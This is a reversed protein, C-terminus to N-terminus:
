RSSSIELAAELRALQRAHCENTQESLHLQKGLELQTMVQRSLLRLAEKQDPTINRAVTDLVCVTGLAIGGPTRLVAGAYFRLHPNDLVLPNHAFRLDRTTDPVVLVDGQLIAHACISSEIPTQRLGLGVEAKFWQRDADVFSVLAMSTGCIMSALKSVDDFAAEQGTDLINYSRLEALRRLEVAEPLKPATKHEM